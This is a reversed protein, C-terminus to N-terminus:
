RGFDEITHGVLPGRTPSADLSTLRAIGQLQPPIAVQSPTSGEDEGKVLLHEVM